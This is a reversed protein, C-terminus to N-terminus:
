AAAYKICAGGEFHPNGFADCNLNVGTMSPWAQM